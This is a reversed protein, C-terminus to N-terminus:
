GEARTALSNAPLCIDEIYPSSSIELAQGRDRKWDAHGDRICIKPRRVSVVRTDVMPSRTGARGDSEREREREKELGRGGM